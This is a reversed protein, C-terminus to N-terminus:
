WYVIEREDIYVPEKSSNYTIKKIWNNVDYEYSYFTSDVFDQIYSQYIKKIKNNNNDYYSVTKVKETGDDNYTISEIENGFEDYKYDSRIDKLYNGITLTHVVVVINKDYKKSLRKELSGSRSYTSQEILNGNIDYKYTTKSDLFNELNVGIWKDLDYHYSVILKNNDDYEFITQYDIKENSYSETKTKNGKKDYEYIYKNKLVGDLDYEVELIIEGKNNYAYIIKSLEGNDYYTINEEINGNKNFLLFNDNACDSCKSGKLILGNSKRAEYISYYISKVKGKLKMEYADSDDNKQSKCGFLILIVISILVAFKLDKM